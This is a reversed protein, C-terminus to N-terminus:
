LGSTPPRVLKRARSADEEAVFIEQQGGRMGDLTGAGFSTQQYHCAIGSERLMGCVVEAEAENRVTTVAVM